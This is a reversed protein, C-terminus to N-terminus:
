KTRGFFGPKLVVALCVMFVQLCALGCLGAVVGCALTYGMPRTAGFIMLLLSVALAAGLVTWVRKNSERNGNRISRSMNYNEGVRGAIKECREVLVWVTLAFGALLMIFVGLTVIEMVVTAYLFFELLLACWAAVAGALGTGRFCIVLLLAAVAMLAVFAWSGALGGEKVLQESHALTGKIEGGNILVAQRAVQQYDGQVPIAIQGDMFVQNVLADAVLEDNVFVMINQNLAAETGKWLKEGGEKTTEVGLTFSTMTEDAYGVTVQHIDDGTMFVTGDAQMFEVKGGAMVTEVIENHISEELVPLAVQINNEEVTVAYDQMGYFGLRKEMVAAAEEATEGDKETYVFTETVSGGLNRGPQLSQPWGGLAPMWPLLKRTGYENLNMGNLGLCSVFVVLAALLVPVAWKAVTKGVSKGVYKKTAM